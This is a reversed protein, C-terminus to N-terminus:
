FACALIARGVIVGTEKVRLAVEHQKLARESTRLVEVLRARLFQEEHPTYTKLRMGVWITAGRIKGRVHPSLECVCFPFRQTPFNKQERMDSELLFGAAASRRSSSLDSLACPRVCSLHIWAMGRAAM